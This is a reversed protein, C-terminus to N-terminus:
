NEHVARSSYITNLNKNVPLWAGAAKNAIYSMIGVCAVKGEVVLKQGSFSEKGNETQSM